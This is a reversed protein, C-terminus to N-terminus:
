HPFHCTPQPTLATITARPDRARPRIGRAAAYGDMEPRHCDMFALDYGVREFMEVAERGNAAIDAQVGLRELMRVAVRQNVVNDEAVLVRLTSGDFATSFSRRVRAPASEPLVPHRTRSFVAALKNLLQM